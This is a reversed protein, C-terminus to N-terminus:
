ANIRTILVHSEDPSSEGAFCDFPLYAETEYENLCDEMRNSNRTQTFKIDSYFPERIAEPFSATRESRDYWSGSIRSLMCEEHSYGVDSVSVDHTFNEVSCANVSSASM